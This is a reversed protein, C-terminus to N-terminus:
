GPTPSMVDKLSLLEQEFDMMSGDQSLNAGGDSVDPEDPENEVQSTM